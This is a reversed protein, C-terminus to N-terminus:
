SSNIEELVAYIITQETLRNNQKNNTLWATLMDKAYCNSRELAGQGRPHRPTGHVIGLESWLEDLEKTIQAMFESENDSELVSPAGFLLFGNTIWKYQNHRM